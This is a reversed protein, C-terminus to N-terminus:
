QHSRFLALPFLNHPVIHGEHEDRAFVYRKRRIMTAPAAPQPYGYRCSDVPFKCRQSHHPIQYADTLERWDAVKADEVMFPSPLPYRVDIVDEVAAIDEPEFDTRFLIRAHLLGHRQYEVRWVYGSVDGRVRLSKVTRIL